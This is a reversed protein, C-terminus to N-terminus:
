PSVTISLPTDRPSNPSDALTERLTFNYTVSAGPTYTLTVANGTLTYARTTAALTFGKLLATATGTLAYSRTAATLLRAAKLTTATGTLAFAGAAATLTYATALVARPVRVGAPALMRPHTTKTPSNVLTWGSGTALDPEPSSDGRLPTYIKLKDRRVLSPSIGSYLSAVDSASLAVTWAAVEAMSGGFSENFPNNGIYFATVGTGTPTGLGTQTTGVQVGDEYFKFQDAGRDWTIALHHWAGSSLTPNNITKSVGGASYAARLNAGFNGNNETIEIEDGGSTRWDILELINTTDSANYWLAFTGVSPDILAGQSSSLYQTSGRAFSRAM